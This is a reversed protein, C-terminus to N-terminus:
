IDVFASYPASITGGGGGGAREALWSACRRFRDMDIRKWKVFERDIQNNIERIVYRTDLGLEMKLHMYWGIRRSDWGFHWKTKDEPFKKKGIPDKEKTEIAIFKGDEIVIHDFDMMGKSYRGLEVDLVFRNCYVNALDGMDYNQLYSLHNEKNRAIRQSKKVLMKKIEDFDSQVWRGNNYVYVILNPKPITVQIKKTASTGEKTTIEVTGWESIDGVEIFFLNQMEPLKSIVKYFELYKGKDDNTITMYFIYNEPSEDSEKKSVIFQGAELVEASESKIKAAYELEARFGKSRASFFRTNAISSTLIKYLNDVLDDSTISM